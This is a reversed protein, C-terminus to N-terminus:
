LFVAIVRVVFRKVLFKLSSISNEAGTLLLFGEKTEAVSHEM